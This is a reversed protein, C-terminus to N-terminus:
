KDFTQKNREELAIAIKNLAVIIGSLLGCTLSSFAIEITTM